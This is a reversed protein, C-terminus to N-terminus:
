PAPVEVFYAPMNGWSPFTTCNTTTANSNYYVRVPTQMMRNALLTGYAAKCASAVIGGAMQGETNCIGHVDNDGALKINVTGDSGLGLEVVNGTCYFGTGADAASSLGFSIV